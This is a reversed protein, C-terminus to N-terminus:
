LGELLNRVDVLWVVVVVESLERAVVLAGHDDIFAVARPLLEALLGALMRESGDLVIM